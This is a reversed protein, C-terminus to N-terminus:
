ANNRGYWRDARNTPAPAATNAVGPVATPGSKLRLLAELAQVGDASILAGGLADAQAKPLNAKLYDEAAKIRTDANAGLKTKESVFTEVDAQQAAIQYKAFAGAFERFGDKPLGYKKGLAQFDAWLPDDAKIEVEFGEPAKFDEPLTLDYADAEGPVNATREAEKALLDRHASWLDGVKVGATDDWLDDPLGEPRIPASAAAGPQETAAGTETGAEAPTGAAAAEAAAGETAGTAAAAGQETAAGEGPNNAETTM